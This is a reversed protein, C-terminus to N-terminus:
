RHIQYRMLDRGHVKLWDHGRKMDPLTEKVTRWFRPSHNMERLHAVEHAAVYDLVFPPALVLRWSFNLQGSSSCSGWRSTQDRITIGKPSLSLREAHAAVQISLDRRAEAKLWDGLKRAFHEPAGPVAIQQNCTDQAVLGRLNGTSMLHHPEGRLPLAMGPALIAPSQIQDLRDSLWDHHRHVFNQADRWNGRKPVTLVVGKKPHLSLRYHKARANQSVVIELAGTALDIQLKEPIAARRKLMM